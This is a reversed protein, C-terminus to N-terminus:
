LVGLAMNGDWADLIQTSISDAEEQLTAAMDKFVYGSSRSISLGDGSESSVGSPNIKFSLVPLFKLAAELGILRNIQPWRDWDSESLGARYEWLTSHAIRQQMWNFLGFPLNPLVLAAAGYQPMLTIEGMNTDVRMWDPKLFIGPTNSGPIIFNGGIVEQIPRINLKWTLFGDSPTISPWHYPAEIEVAEVAPTTDTAPVAPVNAPRAMPGLWGNFHTIAVRTSLRQEVKRIAQQVLTGLLYPDAHNAYRGAHGILTPLIQSRVYDSDVELAM